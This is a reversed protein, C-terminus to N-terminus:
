LKDNEDRMYFKLQFELNSLDAKVPIYHEYPLFLDDYFNKILSDVVFVLSGSLFAQVMRSGGTDQNDIILYKYKFQSSITVYHSYVNPNLEIM